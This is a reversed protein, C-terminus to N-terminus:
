DLKIFEIFEGVSPSSKYKIVFKILMRVVFRNAPNTFYRPKVTSNYNNYLAQDKLLLTVIDNQFKENFEYRDKM